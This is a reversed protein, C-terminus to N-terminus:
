VVYSDEERPGDGVVFTSMAPRSGLTLDHSAAEQVSLILRCGACLAVPARLFLINAFWQIEQNAGSNLFM